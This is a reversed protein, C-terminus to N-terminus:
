EGGNQAPASAESQVPAAIPAQAVPGVGSVLQPVVTPADSSGQPHFSETLSTPSYSNATSVLPQEDSM